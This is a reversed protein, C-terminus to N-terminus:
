SAGPQCFRVTNGFPDLVTFTAGGPADADLGPRQRPELRPLLERRLARVDRVPVWLVSGPTGDGYHESLDLEMADRQLRLYLPLSPEFRHEWLCTFGLTEVYFTRALDADQVRLVPVPAGLQGASTGNRALLAVATNWDRYGYQHAVIELAAARSLTWGREAM